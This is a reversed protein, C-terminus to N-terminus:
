PLEGLQQWGPSIHLMVEPVDPLQQMGEPLVYAHEEFLSQQEPLHLPEDQTDPQPLPPL